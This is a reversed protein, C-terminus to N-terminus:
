RTRCALWSHGRRGAFLASIPQIPAPPELPKPEAQTLKSVASPALTTMKKRICDFM